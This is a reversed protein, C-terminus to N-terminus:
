DHTQALHGYRADPGGVERGNIWARGGARPLADLRRRAQVGQALARPRDADTPTNRSPPKVRPM